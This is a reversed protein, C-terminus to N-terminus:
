GVAQQIQHHEGVRFINRWTLRYSFKWTENLTKYRYFDKKWKWGQDPGLQRSVPYERLSLSSRADDVVRREILLHDSLPAFVELRDASHFTQHVVVGSPLSLEDEDRWWEDSDSVAVGSIRWCGWPAKKAAAWRGRTYIPVSFKTVTRVYTHEYTHWM